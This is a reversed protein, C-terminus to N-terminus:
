QRTPEAQDRELNSIPTEMRKRDTEKELLVNQKIARPIHELSNTIYSDANKDSNTLSTRTVETNKYILLIM